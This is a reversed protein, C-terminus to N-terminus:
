ILIGESRNEGSATTTSATASPLTCHGVESFGYRSYFRKARVNHDFVTLYIEPAQQAKATTLTWRMLEDAVGRGHWASLVYIQRLEIAGPLPRPAPAALPALKAYAIPRDAIAAVRWHILHDSLDREMAGNPGYTEDLFRTFAEPDYLRGFADSFARRAMACLDAASVTAPAYYEINEQM